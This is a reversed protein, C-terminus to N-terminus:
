ESSGQHCSVCPPSKTFHCSHAVRTGGPAARTPRHGRPASRQTGASHPPAPQSQCRPDTAPGPSDEQEPGEPLLSPDTGCPGAPSIVGGRQSRERGTGGPSAHPPPPPPNKIFTPPAPPSRLSTQTDSSRATFGSAGWSLGLFVAGPFLRPGASGLVPQDGRRQSCAHGKGRRGTQHGFGRGWGPGRRRKPDPVGPAEGRVGPEAVLM